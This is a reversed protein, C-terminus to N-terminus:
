KEPKFLDDGMFRTSPSAGGVYILSSDNNLFSGSHYIFMNQSRQGSNNASVYVAYERNKCNSIEGGDMEFKGTDYAVYVPNIKNANTLKSGAKMVFVCGNAVGVVNSREKENNGMLLGEGDITINDELQLSISYSTPNSGMNWFGGISILSINQIGFNGKYYTNDNKVQQSSDHRIRREAGYGRLRIKINTVKDTSNPNIGTLATRYLTENKEVRVLYEAFNNTDKGSKAYSDLWKFAGALGTLDDINIGWDPFGSALHTKYLDNGYTGTNEKTVRELTGYEDVVAFIAAGTLYPRTELEVEVMKLEKGEEEVLLTFHRKGEGFLIEVDDTDVTFIDLSASAKLGDVMKGPEAMKVKGSHEGTVSIAQASRKRVAFYVRSTEAAWLKWKEMSTGSGEWASLDFETQSSNKGTDTWIVDETLTGKVSIVVTESHYVDRLSGSFMVGYEAPSLTRADLTLTHTTSAPKNGVVWEVDEWEEEVKLTLLSPEGDRYIVNIEDLEGGDGRKIISLAGANDAGGGVDETANLGGMVDSCAALIFAFVLGGAWKKMKEM